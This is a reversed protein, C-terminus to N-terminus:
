WFNSNSYKQFNSVNFVKCHTLAGSRPNWVLTKYFPRESRSGVVFEVWM